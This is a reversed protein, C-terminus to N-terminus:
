ILWYFGNTFVFVATHCDPDEVYKSILSYLGEDDESAILPYLEKTSKAEVSILGNLLYDYAGGGEPKHEYEIDVFPKYNLANMLIPHIIAERLGNENYIPEARLESVYNVPLRSLVEQIKLTLDEIKM